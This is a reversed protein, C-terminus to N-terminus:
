GEVEKMLARWADFKSMDYKETDPDVVLYMNQGAEMLRKILDDRRALDARLAGEIPRTNWAEIAEIKTKWCEGWTFNCYEKKAVAFAIPNSYECDVTWGGM